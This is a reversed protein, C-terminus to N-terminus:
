DGHLFRVVDGASFRPGYIAVLKRAVETLIDGSTIIPKEEVDHRTQGLGITAMLGNCLCVRGITDEISGGKASYDDVSEAACRYKIVERGDEQVDAYPERLYGLDCKRNRAEYVETESLTGSLQAVKFPLGTPSARMDTKVSLGVEIAKDIIKARITPDIGSDQCLLFATGVQIGNAGSDKAEKLRDPSDYGGALWFPLRLGEIDDLNVMDRDGYEIKDRPPANHGVAVFGEIVFGSPPDENGSLRKALTNSSVIALFKPVM